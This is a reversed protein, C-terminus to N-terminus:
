ALLVKVAGAQAEPLWGLCCVLLWAARAHLHGHASCAQSDGYLWGGSLEWATRGKVGRWAARCPEAVWGPLQQLM